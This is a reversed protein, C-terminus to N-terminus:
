SVRGFMVIAHVHMLVLLIRSGRNLESVSLTLFRLSLLKQLPGQPARKFSFTVFTVVRACVWGVTFVCGAMQEWPGVSRCQMDTRGDTREFFFITEGRM